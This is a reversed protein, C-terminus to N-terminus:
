NCNPGCALNQYNELENPYTTDQGQLMLDAGSLTLKLSGKVEKRSPKFDTPAFQAFNQHVLM